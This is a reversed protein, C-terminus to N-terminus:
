TRLCNNVLLPLWDQRTGMLETKGLLKDVFIQWMDYLKAAIEHSRFILTLLIACLGDKGQVIQPVTKHGNNHLVGIQEIVESLYGNIRGVVMDSSVQEIM